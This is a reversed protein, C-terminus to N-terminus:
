RQQPEMELRGDFDGAEEFRIVRARPRRPPRPTPAHNRLGAQFEAWARASALRQFEEWLARPPIIASRVSYLGRREREIVYSGKPGDVRFTRMGIRKLGKTSNSSM